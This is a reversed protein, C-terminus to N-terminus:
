FAARLGAMSNLRCQPPVATLLPTNDMDDDDFPFDPLFLEAVDQLPAAPGCDDDSRDVHPFVFQDHLTSYRM